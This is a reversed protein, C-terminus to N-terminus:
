VHMCEHQMSLVDWARPLEEAATGADGESGRGARLCAALCSMLCTASCLGGGGPSPLLGSAGLCGYAGLRAAQARSKTGHAQEGTRGESKYQGKGCVSKSWHGQVQEWACGQKWKM